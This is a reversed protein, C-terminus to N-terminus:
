ENFSIEVKGVGADIKIKNDGEGYIKNDEIEKDEITFSGLGRSPVIKYDELNGKLNIELKGIGADIDSNELLKTNLIQFEGVGVDLDLTNLISDKIVVKGAGGDIDTKNEVLINSITINGAGVELDFEKTQINSINIEGSGAEIKVKEFYYNEPVTIIIHSDINDNFINWASDEKISLTNGTRKAEIRENNTNAEVKLETGQKIELKSYGIEIKLNEINDYNQSIVMEENAIISTNKNNQIKFNIDFISLGFFIATIIGGIINISLFIAFAIALYKIIKQGDSM